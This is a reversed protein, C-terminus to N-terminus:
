FTLTLQLSIGGKYYLYGRYKFHTDWSLKSSFLKRAFMEPFVPLPIGGICFSM